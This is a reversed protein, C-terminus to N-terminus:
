EGTDGYVQSVAGAAYLNSTSLWQRKWHWDDMVFQAFTEDDLEFIDDVSMQLMKIVRDYDATHDEPRSIVIRISPTKGAALDKIHQELMRQAEQRYGELAQEFVERHKTRNEEIITLLDTVHVRTKMM